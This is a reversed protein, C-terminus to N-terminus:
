VRQIVTTRVGPQAHPISNGRWMLGNPASVVWTLAIGDNEGLIVGRPVVCLECEGSTCNHVCPEITEARPAGGNISVAEIVGQQIAANIEPDM